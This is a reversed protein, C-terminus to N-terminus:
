NYLMKISLKYLLMASSLLHVTGCHIQSVAARAAHLSYSAITFSQVEAYHNSGPSKNIFYLKGMSESTPPLTPM